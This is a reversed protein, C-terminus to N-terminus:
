QKSTIALKIRLLTGTILQSEVTHALSNKSLAVMEQELNVNNGDRGVSVAKPDPALTPRLGDIQHPNASGCARDLEARFSPALDMRKYGPTDLNAINSAIAEHRLAIGDLAKKAVVYNPQNFLADIM